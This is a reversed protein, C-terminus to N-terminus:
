TKALQERVWKIRKTNWESITGISGTPGVRSASRHLVGWLDRSAPLNRVVKWSVKHTNMDEKVIAIWQAWVAWYFTYQYGARGFITKTKITRMDSVGCSGTL